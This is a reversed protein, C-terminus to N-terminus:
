APRCGRLGARAAGSSLHPPHQATSSPAGRRGAAWSAVLDRWDAADEAGSAMWRQQWSDGAQDQLWSVVTLLGRRRTQQSDANDLAFPAALLRTTM